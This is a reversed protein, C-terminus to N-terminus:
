SVFRYGFVLIFWWHLDNITGLRYSFVKQLFWKQLYFLLLLYIYIVTLFGLYKNSKNNQM